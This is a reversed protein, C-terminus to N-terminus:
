YPFYQDAIHRDISATVEEITAYDTECGGMTWYAIEEGSADYGHIGMSQGGFWAFTIGSQEDYKTVKAGELEKVLSAM